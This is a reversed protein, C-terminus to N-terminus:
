PNEEVLVAALKDLEVGRSAKIVVVDGPAMNERLWALAEARDTAFVGTTSSGTTRAAGDLM